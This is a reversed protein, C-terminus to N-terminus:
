NVQPLDFLVRVLHEAQFEKFNISRETEPNTFM